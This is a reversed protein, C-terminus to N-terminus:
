WTLRGTLAIRRANTDTGSYYGFTSPSSLSAGVTSFTTNNFVNFFQAQLTLHMREPKLRFVRGLTLDSEVVPNLRIVNRGLTGFHGILPQALGSNTILNPNNAGGGPNPQFPINLPGVLDGRQAGNGGLLTGDGIGAVTGAFLDQPLGRQAQFIGALEWGNAAANLWRNRIGKFSSVFDNTIVLRQPVDFASVARNNRNNRPDQQASVDTALVNLADSVDDISKSYTYAVTFGYWGSFRRDLYVQLSNYNSNASSGVVSVGNFRPDLRNSRTSVTGSLGSNM